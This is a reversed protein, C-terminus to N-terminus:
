SPLSTEICARVPQHPRVPFRARIPGIRRGTIGGSLGMSALAVSRSGSPSL